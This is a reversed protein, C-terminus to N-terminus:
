LRDKIIDKYKSITQTVIDALHKASVTLEEPDYKYEINILEILEKTDNELDEILMVLQGLIMINRM